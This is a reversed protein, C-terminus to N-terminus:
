PHSTPRSSTTIPLLGIVRDSLAKTAQELPGRQFRSRWAVAFVTMVLIQLVYSANDDEPLVTTSLIWVHATYLTMTMCGVDALVSMPRPARRAVWLCVAILLMSTGITHVLDLPTTSHPTRVALWWWTSTPTTGYLSNNITAAVQEPALMEAEVIADFGGLPGLLISSLAIAGLALLAGGVALSREVRPSDLMLRGICLGAAIYAVWSTVPYYGTLLLARLAAAPDAAVLEFSLNPGGPPLDAWIAERLAFSVFPMVIAVGAAVLATRRPPWAIMPLALVFLLAYYTLIVAVPTGTGGLWLGLGALVVARVLTRLRLETVRQPDPLRPGGSALALGVGALVAFAASARGSALQHAVTVGGGSALDPYVHTAVMGFLALARAADVGILRTRAAM